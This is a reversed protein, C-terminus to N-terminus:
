LPSQGANPAGFTHEAATWDGKRDTDASSSRQVSRRSDLADFGGAVSTPDLDVGSAAAEHFAADVFGGPPVGGNPSQWQSASVVLAAANETQESTGQMLSDTLLVADLIRDENDRVVLVSPGAVPGQNPVYWDYATDFNTPHESRPQEDPAQTENSITARRCNGDNSDFHVVVLDNRQVTMDSNFTLVTSSQVRLDFDLLNGPQVVRLEVLDCGEVVNAKVENIRVDARTRGGLFSVSDGDMSKGFVDRLSPDITLTYLQGDVQQTTTLTVVRGSVTASTATLGNTLFFQSGDPVLTGTDIARSLVIRVQTGTEATVEVIRPVPCDVNQFDGLEYALLHYESYYQWLATTPIELTCGFELAALDQLTQPVRLRLYEYFYFGITVYFYGFESGDSALEGSILINGSILEAAYLYMDFTFNEDTTVDQLLPSVSEGRGHIVVNDIYTGMPLGYIDSMELLRFSVRDGVELRTGGLDPDVGVFLAPGPQESQVFFGAPEFAAGPKVYTVLVQPILINVPGYSMLAADIGTLQGGDQGPFADPPPWPWGSDTWPGADPTEGAVCMWTFPDCRQGEPCWGDPACLVGAPPSPNFCGQLAWILGAIGILGRHATTM